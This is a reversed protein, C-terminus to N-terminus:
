VAQKGQKNEHIHITEGAEFTCLLIKQHNYNYPFRIPNWTINALLIDSM